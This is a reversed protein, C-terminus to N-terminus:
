CDINNPHRSGAFSYITKSPADSSPQRCIGTVAFGIELTGVSAKRRVITV